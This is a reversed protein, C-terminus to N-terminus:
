SAGGSQSHNYRDCTRQLGACGGHREAACASQHSQGCLLAAMRGREGGTACLFVGGLLLLAVPGSHTLLGLAYGPDVAALVGPHRLVGGLGILGIVVFWALMIPGFAKGITATGFRQAAFLGILIALALPLIFPKLANTTVNVGELASLVSISPTIMGDGYILAAGLLGM